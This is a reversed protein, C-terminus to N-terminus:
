LLKNFMIMNIDDLELSILKFYEKDKPQNEAEDQNEPKAQNDSKIQVEVECRAGALLASIDTIPLNPHREVLMKVYRNASGIANNLYKVETYNICKNDDEAIRHFSLCFGYQGVRVSNIIAKM